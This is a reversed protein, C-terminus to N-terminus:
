DGFFWNLLTIKYWLHIHHKSWSSRLPPKILLEQKIIFKWNLDWSSSESDYIALLPHFLVGLILTSTCEWHKIIYCNRTIDDTISTVMSVHRISSTTQCKQVTLTITKDFKFVNVGNSFVVRTLFIGFWHIRFRYYWRLSCVGPTRFSLRNYRKGLDYIRM